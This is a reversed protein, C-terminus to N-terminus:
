ICLYKDFIDIANILDTISKHTYVDETMSGSAHGVIRKVSLPNMDTNSCLTIFTHRTEHITHNPIEKKWWTWFQMYTIPENNKNILYENESDYHKEIFSLIHKSIPITRDKGAKTKSGGRLVRNKLDVNKTELTLLENIRFGTCLLISVIEYYLDDKKSFVSQIEDMTFPVKEKLRTREPLVIFTSYNKQAVDIEMAYQSLKSFLQKLKSKGSQNNVEDVIDQLHATRIKSFPMKYLRESREFAKKYYGLNKPLMKSSNKEYWMEYLKEFTLSVTDIDWPNENYKALMIMGEAQSKCYGLTTFKQKVGNEWEKTVRVRWPNRRNGSLKHVSGYGNPNRM